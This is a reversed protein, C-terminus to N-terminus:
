RVDTRESARERERMRGIGSHVFVDYLQIANIVSGFLGMMGLFEMWDLAKVLREMGVNSVAYCLASIACLADGLALVAPPIPSGSSHFYTETLVLLVVGGLSVLVAMFHKITYRSGLCLRSLLMVCPTVLCGSLLVVSSITTFQYAKVVTYNAEVDFLALFPYVWWRANLCFRRKRPRRLLFIPIFVIACLIYNVLSQATPIAVGRMALMQSCLGTTTILLALAQGLIVAIVTTRNCREKLAKLM